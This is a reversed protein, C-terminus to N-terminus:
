AASSDASSLFAVPIYAGLIKGATDKASLSCLVGACVLLNCFFGMMVANWLPILCKAAAVRITFVALTGGSYDLQGFLACGAALLVGGTLNGVYVAGWNKLM